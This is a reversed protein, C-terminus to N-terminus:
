AVQNRPQGRLYAAITEIWTQARRYVSEATYWGHTPTITLRPLALYPAPSGIVDLAAGGITRAELAARLAEADILEDASVNVVVATSKMTRLERRGLLGATASTLPLTLFVCDSAALLAHLSVQRAGALTKRSRNCFLVRM